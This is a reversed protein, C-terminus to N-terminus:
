SNKKAEEKEEDTPEKYEGSEKLAKLEAVADPYTLEVVEDYLARAVGEGLGMVQEKSLGANELGNSVTDHEPDKSCQVRYEQTFENLSIEGGLAEVDVTIKNIPFKKM